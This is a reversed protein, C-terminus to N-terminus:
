QAAPLGTQANSSQRTALTSALIRYVERNVILGIHRGFVQRNEGQPDICSRWDVVEDQKTFISTFDVGTPLSSFATRSFRCSCALSGCASSVGDARKRLIQLTRFALPVLPHVKFSTGDIPAGLAFVHSIKEPFNVGLFRALMGGLSHGLVVAPMGCEDTIHALRWGLRGSKEDPCGVNWDIGSLYPRYGIRMLWRAMTSLSWDGAFFGPILLVPRNDGRVIDAGYFVPDCLLCSLSQAFDICSESM